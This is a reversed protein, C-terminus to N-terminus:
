PPQAAGVTDAMTAGRAGLPLPRGTTTGSLTQHEMEADLEAGMLFVVVSLWIWVMFGIVAGLSGYTANYASFHATYWSFLFSAGLWVLAAVASGRTIWHWKARARSPAYRYLVALAFTVVVFMLPWRLLPMIPDVTHEVGVFHLAIPLVVIAALAFLLFVIAGSTFALSLANLAIFGRKETEGYIINLADFFAKMGANASWLSTLLSIAFTLGLTGQGQAALRTMQERLVDLAGGPLVGSLDDLHVAITGADAFLGYLSFLAAIAPFIALLSYFTVGAAIAMVRHASVNNYVRLLIDKWGRAPIEAPVEALRGRDQAEEVCYQGDHEAPKVDLGSSVPPPASPQLRSVAGSALFGLVAAIIWQMPQMPPRDATEGLPQKRRVFIAFAAGGLLLIPLAARQSPSSRRAAEFLQAKIEKPSLCARLEALTGALKQRTEEVERELEKTSPM